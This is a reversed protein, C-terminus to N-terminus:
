KLLSEVALKIDKDQVTKRGAHEALKIAYASIDIGIETLEEALMLAAKDSVRYAGAKEIIKGASAKPITNVSRRGM